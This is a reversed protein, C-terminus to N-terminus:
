PWSIHPANLSAGLRTLDSLDAEGILCRTPRSRLWGGLNCRCRGRRMPCLNLLDASPAWDSSLKGLRRGLHSPPERRDWLLRRTRAGARPLQDSQIRHIPLRQVALTEGGVRPISFQPRSGSRRVNRKRGDTRRRRPRRASGWCCWCDLGGRWRLGVDRRRSRHPELPLVGIPVHQDAVGPVGPQDVERVPSAAPCLKLPVVLQFLQTPAGQKKPRLPTASAPHAPSQKLSLRPHKGPLLCPHRLQRRRALPLELPELPQSRSNRYSETLAVRLVPPSTPSGDKANFVQTDKLSMVLLDPNKAPPPAERVVPKPHLLLLPLVPQLSPLLLAIM